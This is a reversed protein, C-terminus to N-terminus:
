AKKRRRRIHDLNIGAITQKFLAEAENRRNIEYRGEVWAGAVPTSQIGFLREFGLGRVLEDTQMNHRGYPYAFYRPECGLRERLVSQSMAVDPSLRDIPGLADIHSHTHSEFTVLGTAQLERMQSWSMCPKTHRFAAVRAEADHGDIYRTPTFVTAPLNAGILLPFASMYFDALADDFTIAARPREGTTDFLAALPVVEFYRKLITIHRTLNVPSVAGPDHDSRDDISHYLLVIDQDFRNLRRDAMGSSGIFWRAALKAQRMVEAMAM